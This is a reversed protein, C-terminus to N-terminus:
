WFDGGWRAFEVGGGLFIVGCTAGEAGSPMSVIPGPRRSCPSASNPLWIKRGEVHAGCIGWLLIQGRFFSRKGRVFVQGIKFQKSWAAEFLLPGKFMIVPHCCIWQSFFQPFCRPKLCLKSRESKALSENCVAPNQSTRTSEFMLNSINLHKTPYLNSLISIQQLKNWSMKFIGEMSSVYGVLRSFSFWRSLLAKTLPYTLEWSPLITFVPDHRWPDSHKRLLFTASFGM